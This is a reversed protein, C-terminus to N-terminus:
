CWHSSHGERCNRLLVSLDQAFGVDDRAAVTALKECKGALFECISSLSGVVASSKVKWEELRWSLIYASTQFALARLLFFFDQAPAEHESNFLVPLSEIVVEEAGDTLRQMLQELLNHQQIVKDLTEACRRARANITHLFPRATAPDTNAAISWVACTELYRIIYGCESLEINYNFTVVAQLLERLSEIVAKAEPSSALEETTFHSDVFHRTHFKEIEGVIEKTASDNYDFYRHSYFRLDKSPLRTLNHDTNSASIYQLSRWAFIALLLSLLLRKLSMISTSSQATQRSPQM